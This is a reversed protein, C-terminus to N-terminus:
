IVELDELEVESGLLRSLILLRRAVDVGSLDSRVNPEGIRNEVALQVLDSFRRGEEFKNEFFNLNPFEFIRKLKVMPTNLSM